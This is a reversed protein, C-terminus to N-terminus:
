HLPMTCIAASTWTSGATLAGIIFQISFFYVVVLPIFAVLTFLGFLRATLKAGPVHRWFQRILIGLNVTILTLLLIVCILVLILLDDHLRSFTKTNRTTIALLYLSVVLLIAAIASVTRFIKQKM